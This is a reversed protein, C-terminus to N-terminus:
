FVESSDYVSSIPHTGCDAFVVNLTCTSICIIYRLLVNLTCNLFIIPVYRWILYMLFIPVIKCHMIYAVPCVLNECEYYM